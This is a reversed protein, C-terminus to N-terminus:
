SGPLSRMLPQTQATSHITKGEMRTNDIRIMMASTLCFKLNMDLFPHSIFKFLMSSSQMLISQRSVKEVCNLYCMHPLLKLLVVSVPWVSRRIPRVLDAAAPQKMRELFDHFTLTTTAAALSDPAGNGDSAFAAM